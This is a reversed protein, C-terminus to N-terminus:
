IIKIGEKIGMPPAYNYNGNFLKSNLLIGSM